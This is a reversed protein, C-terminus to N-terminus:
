SMGIRQEAIDGAKDLEGKALAVQIEYLASLHDRMNGLMHTKMMEPLKVKERNDQDANVGPAVFALALVAARVFLKIKMKEYETLYRNPCPEGASGGWGGYRMPLYILSLVTGPLLGGIASSVRELGIARPMAISIM